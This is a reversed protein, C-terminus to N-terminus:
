ACRTSRPLSASTSPWPHRGKGGRHGSSPCGVYTPSRRLALTRGRPGADRRAFSPPEGGGTTRVPRRDGTAATRAASGVPVEVNVRSEILDASPDRNALWENVLGLWEADTELKAGFAGFANSDAHETTYLTTFPGGGFQANFVRVKAGLRHHIKRARTCVALFDQFRGPRARWVNVVLVAAM